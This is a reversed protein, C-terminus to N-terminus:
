GKRVRLWVILVALLVFFGRHILHNLKLFCRQYKDDCEGAEVSFRQLDM